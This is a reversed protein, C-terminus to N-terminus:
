PSNSRARSECRGYLVAWGPRANAVDAGQLVAFDKILDRFNVDVRRGFPVRPPMMTSSSRKESSLTSV